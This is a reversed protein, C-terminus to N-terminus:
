VRADLHVGLHRGPVERGLARRGLVLEGLLLAAPQVGSILSSPAATVYRREGSATRARQSFTSARPTPPPSSCKAISRSRSGAAAAITTSTVRAAYGVSSM